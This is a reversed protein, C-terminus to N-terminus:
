RNEEYVNACEKCNTVPYEGILRQFHINACLQEALAITHQIGGSTSSYFPLLFTIM